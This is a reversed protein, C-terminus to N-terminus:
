STHAGCAIQHQSLAPVHGLVTRDSPHRHDIVQGVWLGRPAELEQPPPLAPKRVAEAAKPQELLSDLGFPDAEIGGGAPEAADAGGPEATESPPAPQAAPEAEPAASPPAVSPQEVAASRAEDDQPSIVPKAPTGRSQCPNVALGRHSPLLSPFAM